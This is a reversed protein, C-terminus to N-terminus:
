VIIQCLMIVTVNEGKWQIHIKTQQNRTKNRQSTDGTFHQVSTTISSM